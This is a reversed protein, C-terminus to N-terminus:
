SNISSLYYSVYYQFRNGTLKGLRKKRFCDQNDLDMFVCRLRSTQSLEIDRKQAKPPQQSCL